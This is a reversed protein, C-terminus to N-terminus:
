ARTSLGLARLRSGRELRTRIEQSRAEQGPKGLLAFMNAKYAEVGPQDFPNVGRALGGVGCAFMNTYLWYGMWYADLAPMEWALTPVKGDAHALFTGQQAEHQVRALSEGELFGFGDDLGADPIGITRKLAGRSFSAEELVKLHTAFLNREGEQFYQGLSHLDTTFQASAPFLGTFDKGDSEGFLQKWWEAVGRLKPTWHCLAETKYGKAYLINRLGAYALAVNTELSDNSDSTADHCAQRAGEVLREVDVGAIALPLLGVPSLVSYRGGMDRPIAFMPYGQEKALRHLTGGEPDTIAAVRLRAEKEGFRDDMYKKLVRFALAPETTGGSKSIVVLSPTFHDLADLLECLEDSAVHHGAWFLLPRRHFDGPNIAAFSHTLAEYIAKTGLLSGGIGVVVIANSHASFTEVCKRIESLVGPAKERPYHVWGMFDNGRGEARVLAKKAAVLAPLAASLEKEVPTVDHAKTWDLVLRKEPTKTM